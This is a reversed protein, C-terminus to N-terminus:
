SAAPAERLGDRLRAAARELARRGEDVVGLTQMFGHFLGEAREHSVEVGAERLREAYAEGEDRLVDFGATLVHAPPQERFSEFRIPSIRPDDLGAPDSLYHSMFWSVLGGTLVFGEAFLKRSPRAGNGRDVSPYILLQFCPSAGAREPGLHAVVAALTAGASDGGVAIRDREFGVEACHEVLWAWVALADDAAAPFPHEPALRYDVALVAAGSELALVRCAGDHSDLDGVVFGGGHFYLLGPGRAAATPRYLRARLPGAAGAVELERVEHLQAPPADVMRQDIAMLRRAREPSGSDLAPRRTVKQLTLMWQVQPDLQQGDVVVPRLRSLLSPLSRPPRLARRASAIMLAQLLTPEAM